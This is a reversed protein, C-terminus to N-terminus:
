NNGNNSKSLKTNIDEILKNISEPNSKKPLRHLAKKYNYLAVEYLGLRHYGLGRSQWVSSHNSEYKIASNLHHISKIFLDLNLSCTENIHNFLKNFEKVHYNYQRRTDNESNDGDLLKDILTSVRPTEAFELCKIILNCEAQKSIGYILAKEFCNKAKLIKDNYINSYGLNYFGIADKNANLEKIKLEYKKEEIATSILYLGFLIFFMGLIVLVAQLNTSLKFFLLIICVAGITTLIIGTLKM